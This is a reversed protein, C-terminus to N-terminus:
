SQDCARQLVRGSYKEGPGRCLGRHLRCSCGHSPLPGGPHTLFPSAPLSKRLQYSVCSPKCLLSSANYWYGTLNIEIYLHVSLVVTNSNFVAFLVSFLFARHSRLVVPPVLSKHTAALLLNSGCKWHGAPIFLSVATFKSQRYM